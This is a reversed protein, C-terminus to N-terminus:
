SPTEITQYLQISLPQYLSAYAALGSCNIMCLFRGPRVAYLVDERVPIWWERAELTLHLGPNGDPLVIREPTINLDEEKKGGANIDVAKVWKMLQNLTTTADTASRALPEVVINIQAVGATKEALGPSLQISTGMAERDQPEVTWDAPVKLRFAGSPDEYSATLSPNHPLQSPHIFLADLGLGLLIVSANMLVGTFAVGPCGLPSKSPLASLFILIGAGAGIKGLLILWAPGKALGLGLAV